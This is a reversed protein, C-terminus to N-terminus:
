LGGAIAEAEAAAGVAQAAAASLWQAYRAAVATMAASAAGQWPGRALGSAAAALMPGSGAGTGIRWWPAVRDAVLERRDFRGPMRVCLSLLEVAGAGPTFGWFM